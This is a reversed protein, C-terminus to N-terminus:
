QQVSFADFEAAHEIGGGSGVTFGLQGHSQVMVHTGIRTWRVGDASVLGTYRVGERRLQLYWTEVDPSFGELDRSGLADVRPTIINQEENILKFFFPQRRDRLGSITRRVLVESNQRGGAIGLLLHNEQDVHYRLGVFNDQGIEMAVIVTAVFDEPFFENMLVINKRPETGVIILKGGVLTLRNPDSDLVSYQDGLTDRDFDDTYADGGAGPSVAALKWEIPIHKAQDGAEADGAALGALVLVGAAALGGCAARLSGTRESGTRESGTRESGTRESCQLMRAMAQGGRGDTRVFNAAKFSLYALTPAGGLGSSGPVTNSVGREPHLDM